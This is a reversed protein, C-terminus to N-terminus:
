KKEFLSAERDSQDGLDARTPERAPVNELSAIHALIQRIAEAAKGSALLLGGDLTHGVMELITSTPNVMVRHKAM